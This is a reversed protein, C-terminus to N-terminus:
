KLEYVKSGKFFVGKILNCKPIVSVFEDYVEKPLYIRKPPHDYIIVHQSWRFDVKEVISMPVFILQSPKRYRKAM